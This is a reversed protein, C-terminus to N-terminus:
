AKQKQKEALRLLDAIGFDNNRGLTPKWEPQKARFSEFDGELLGIFVESVIRSGVPGLHKGEGIREAECLVYIWLPVPTDLRLDYKSGARKLREAMPGWISEAPIIQQKPIEMQTAIEHGSPVEFSQGRRIDRYALSLEPRNARIGRAPDLPDRHTTRESPFLEPPLALLPEALFPGLPMSFQPRSGDVSFFLPWEVEDEKNVPRHGNLDPLILLQTAMPTSNINYRKRIQCHGFRFVAVNFEVPIYPDPGKWQYFRRGKRLVDELIEKDVILPLYEKLIIWQYHWRVLEQAQRFDVKQSDVVENHFNLFATHLQSVIRNEDNRPDGIIAIEPYTSPAGLPKGIRPLDARDRGLRLKRPDHPDYLYPMVQPGCGYVSDLEFAATRFNRIAEPDNQQELSSTPDFTIDHDIFQGLYTFGAPIDFNAGAGSGAYMPGYPMGIAQALEEDTPEKTRAFMRGFRGAKGTAINLGRM